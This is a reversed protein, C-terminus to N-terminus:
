ASVHVQIGRKQLLAQVVSVPADQVAVNQQLAVAALLGSSEGLQMFTPEVRTSAYAVHTASHCVPVILNTVESRKPLVTGVPIEYANGVGAIGAVLNGENNAILTGNSSKVATRSVVHIDYGWSGVAISDNIYVGGKIDNQTFVYDGVIRLGERVYLQTPIHNNEPWQDNCLGFSQTNNRTYEPVSPDTALFYVLGLVYYYTNQAIQDRQAYTGEVYGRNLNIADSTFASPGDCMDFKDGPPYSRYILVDVMDGLGPGNPHHGSAVLSEVYRQLLVFDSANYNPPPFFPTQKHPTPTICLRYSYGMMRDDASGVPALPLTDVYNIISDSTPTTTALVPFNSVFNSTPTYQLVGAYEENYQQKSERGYTYSVGAFRALDGEYSADIFVEATFEQLSYLSSNTFISTIVTGSVQVGGKELLQRDLLVELNDIDLLQWLSSRMVYIDPQYVSYEVGYYKANLLTWQYGITNTFTTVNGLDRLGIGGAVSM